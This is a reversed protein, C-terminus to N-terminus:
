QFSMDEVQRSSPVGVKRRHGLIVPQGLLTCTHTLTNESFIREESVMQLLWAAQKHPGDMALRYSNSTLSLYHFFSFSFM